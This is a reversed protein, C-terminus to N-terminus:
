AKVEGFGQITYKGNEYVLTSVSANPVGMSGDMFESAQEPCLLPVLFSISMGHSVLLIEKHGLNLSENIIHTMAKVLRESYEIATESLWTNTIGVKQEKDLAAMTDVVLEAQTVIDGFSINAKARLDKELLDEDKGEYYGFNYERLGQTPIIDHRTGMTELIVRSTQLTRGSDSSYVKDFKKNNHKWYNGLKKVGEIGDPTLFSDGWGQVKNEYNFSTQGHRVLHITVRVIRGGKVKQKNILYVM